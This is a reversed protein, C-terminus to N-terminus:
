IERIETDPTGTCLIFKQDYPNKNLFEKAGLVWNSNIVKELVLGSFKNCLKDVYAEDVRINLFSEYYLKFKKYRSIGLNLLHHNVVKNAIESGYSEFMKKFADTKVNNSEKIVGDFDLFIIRFSKFIKSNIKNM